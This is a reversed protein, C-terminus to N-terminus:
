LSRPAIPAVRRYNETFSSTSVQMSGQLTEMKIDYRLSWTDCDDCVDIDAWREEAHLSRMREYPPGSWVDALRQELLNGMRLRYEYDRCCPVCDGNTLVVMFSTLDPCAVRKPAFNLRTPRGNVALNSITVSFVRDAWQEVIAERELENDPQLTFNVGTILSGALMRDQAKELFITINRHVEDHNGRARIKEFTAKTAGDISFCIVRFQSLALLQDSREPALLAANTTFGFPMGIRELHECIDLFQPHLFCEGRYQPMLFKAGDQTLAAYQDAVSKFFELEVFRPMGRAFHSQGKILEGGHSVCMQCRFNCLNSVEITLSTLAPLGM